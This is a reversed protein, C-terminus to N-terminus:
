NNPPMLKRVFVELAKKVQYSSVRSSACTLQRRRQTPPRPQPHVRCLKLPSFTLGLHRVIGEIRFSTALSVCVCACACVRIWGCCVVTYRDETMNWIWWFYMGVRICVSACVCVYMHACMWGRVTKQSSNENIHIDFHELAGILQESARTTVHGKWIRRMVERQFVEETMIKAPRATQSFYHCHARTYRNMLARHINWRSFASHLIYRHARTSAHPLIQTSINLRLDLCAQAGDSILAYRDGALIQWLEWRGHGSGWRDSVDRSHGHRRHRM